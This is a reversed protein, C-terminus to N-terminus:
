RRRQWPQQVLRGRGTVDPGGEGEAPHDPRQKVRHAPMPALAPQTRPPTAPVTNSASPHIGTLRGVMITATKRNPTVLTPARSTSVRHRCSSVGQVLGAPTVAAESNPPVAM